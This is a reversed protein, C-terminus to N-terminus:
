LRKKRTTGVWAELASLIELVGADKVWYERTRGKTEYRVLDVNRLHRLTISVSPLSVDLGRSIEAPTKRKTDLFRLILYATPNGLVRFCRSARYLTEPMNKKNLGM